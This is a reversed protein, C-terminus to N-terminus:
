GTQEPESPEAHADGAMTISSGRDIKLGLSGIEKAAGAVAEQLQRFLLDAIGLGGADTLASAFAEEILAGYQASGAPGPAGATGAAALVNMERTVYRMFVEELDRCAQRLRVEEHTTGSSRVQLSGVDTM